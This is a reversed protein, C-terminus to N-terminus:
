EQYEGFEAKIVKNGVINVSVAKLKKGEDVKAKVEEADKCGDVYIVGGTGLFVLDVTPTGYDEILQEYTYGEDSEAKKNIKDAMGQNVCGTLLLAFILTLSVLCTLLKKM